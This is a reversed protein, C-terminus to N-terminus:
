WKKRDDIKKHPLLMQNDGYKIPNGCTPCRGWDVSIVPAWRNSGQCLKQKWGGRAPKV